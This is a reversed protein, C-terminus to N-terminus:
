KNASSIQLTALNNKKRYFNEDYGPFNLMARYAADAKKKLTKLESKTM